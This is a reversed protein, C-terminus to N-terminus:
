PTAYISSNKGTSLDLSSGCFYPELLGYCEQAKQNEFRLTTNSLHILLDDIKGENDRGLEIRVVHTPNIAVDGLAILFGSM